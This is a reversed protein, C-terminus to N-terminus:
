NEFMWKKSRDRDDLLRDLHARIIPGAFNVVDDETLSVTLKPFDKKVSPWETYFESVIETRAELPRVGVHKHRVYWAWFDAAQLPLERRDDAFRPRAGFKKRTRIPRGALYAQWMNEIRKQQSHQDFVFAVPGNLSIADLMEDKIHLFNDMVTRFALFYQNDYASWDVSIGPVWVRAKGREWIREDIAVYFSAWVYKNIIQLFGPVRLRREPSKMMEVAHFIQSRDAELHGAPLMREWEESFPVWDVESAIFGALVYIGDSASEDAYAVFKEKRTSV